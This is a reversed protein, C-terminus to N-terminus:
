DVPRLFHNCCSITAALFPQLLFHNCSRCRSWQQHVLSSRSIKRSSSSKLSAWLGLISQSRCDLFLELFRSIWSWSIEIDLVLFDRYGAGGRSAGALAKRFHFRALARKQSLFIERSSKKKLSASLFSLFFKRKNYYIEIELFDDASFFFDGASFVFDRCKWSLSIRLSAWIWILGSFLYVESRGIGSSTSSSNYWEKWIRLNSIHSISFCHQLLRLWLSYLLVTTGYDWNLVFFNLDLLM